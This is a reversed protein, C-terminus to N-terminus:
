SRASDDIAVFAFENNPFWGYRNGGVTAGIIDSPDSLTWSAIEDEEPDLLRMIVELVGSGNDRFEHVFTYWGAETVVEPDRGPNCPWGPSNNSASVCFNPDAGSRGVSFVFDRRHNCDPQSIASSYDFQLDAGSNAPDLYIALSTDFGGQAFVSSYGGWRTFGATPSAPGAVQAYFGGSKAPIGGTGSAVRTVGTWGATDQNFNQAFAGQCVGAEANAGCTCAGSCCDANADCAGGDIVQCIEDCIAQGSPCGCAGNTCVFTADCDGSNRCEVCIQNQCYPTNGSCDSDKTCGTACAGNVCIQGTACGQNNRCQVCVRNQCFPTAGSCDSDRTCGTIPPTCEGAKGAICEGEYDCHHQLHQKRQKKTVKITACSAPDNTACHCIVSKKRKEAGAKKRRAHKKRAEADPDALGIGAAAALGGRTIGRVLSRRSTLDAVRRTLRDFSGSEM